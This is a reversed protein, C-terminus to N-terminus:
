VCKRRMTVDYILFLSKVVRRRDYQLYICQLFVVFIWFTICDLSVFVCFSQCPLNLTDEQVLSVTINHLVLLTEPMCYLQDLGLFWNRMATNEQSVKFTRMDSLSHTEIWQAVVLVATQPAENMKNGELVPPLLSAMVSPAVKPSKFGWLNFLCSAAGNTQSLHSFKSASDHMLSGCVFWSWDSLEYHNSAHEHEYRVM